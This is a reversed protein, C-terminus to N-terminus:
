RKAAAARRLRLEARVKRVLPRLGARYAYRLTPVPRPAYSRVVVLRRESTSFRRKWPMDVGLFEHADLGLKFCREIVSLRLSMGPGLKAVSEDYGTKLLWYRNGSLLAFDFAVVDGDMILTSFRLGGRRDFAEALSRYFRMARADTAMATGQRGKWGSAEVRLGTELEADLQRPAAVLRWEVTHERELKRRRREIERFSAKMTARYSALEGRTDVIPAISQSEVLCARRRAASLRKVAAIVPDGAPLAANRLEAGSSALVAAVLDDLARADRALPRFLPTHGNAMATLSRGDAVLPFTGVIEGAEWLVCLALRRGEGFAEWWSRLWPYTGFPSPDRGALRDWPEAIDDFRELHTIWEVRPTM